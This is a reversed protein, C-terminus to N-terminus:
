SRRAGTPARQRTSGGEFPRVESPRLDGHPGWPPANDRLFLALNAAAPAHNRRNREAAKQIRPDNLHDRMGRVVNLRSRELWAVIDPDQWLRPLRAMAALNELWSLPAHAVPNPPCLHNQEDVDDRTAELYGILAANFVPSCPRVGQLVIRDPAFIPQLPARHLGNATCDIHLTGPTTPVTGDALAIEHRAIHRVRGLRVVDEVSRLQELERRTVIACRYM